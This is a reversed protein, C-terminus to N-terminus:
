VGDAHLGGRFASDFGKTGAPLNYGGAFGKIRCLIKWAPPWACVRHLRLPVLGEAGDRKFPRRIEPVTRGPPWV